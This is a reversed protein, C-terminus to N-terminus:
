GIQVGDLYTGLGPTKMEAFVEGVPEYETALVPSDGVSQRRRELMISHRLPGGSM